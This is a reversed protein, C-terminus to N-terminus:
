RRNGIVKSNFEDERKPNNLCTNPMLGSLTESLSEMCRLGIKAELTGISLERSGGLQEKYATALQIPDANVNSMMYATLLDCWGDETFKSLSEEIAISTTIRPNKFPEYISSQIKSYKGISQVGHIFDHSFWTKLVENMMKTSTDDNGLVHLCAIHILKEVASDFNTTKALNVDWRNEELLKTCRKVIKSSLGMNLCKICRLSQKSMSHSFELLSPYKDESIMDLPDLPTERQTMQKTMESSLVKMDRVFQDNLSRSLEIFVNSETSKGEIWKDCEDNFKDFNMPKSGNVSGLVTSM